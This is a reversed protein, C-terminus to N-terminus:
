EEIVTYLKMNLFNASLERNRLVHSAAKVWLLVELLIKPRLLFLNHVAEGANLTGCGVVETNLHDDALKMMGDGAIM